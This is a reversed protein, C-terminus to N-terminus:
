FIVFTTLCLLEVPLVVCFSLNIRVEVPIEAFVRDPVVAEPVEEEPKEVPYIEPLAREEHIEEEVVSPEEYEAVSLEEEMEYLDDRAEEEEEKEELYFMDNVFDEHEDDPVEANV